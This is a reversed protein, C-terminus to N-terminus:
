PSPLEAEAEKARKEAVSAPVEDYAFAVKDGASFKTGFRQNLDAASGETLDFATGIYAVEFNRDGLEAGEGEEVSGFIVPIRREDATKLRIAAQEDREIKGAARDQERQARREAMKAEEAQYVSELKAVNADRKLFPVRWLGGDQRPPQLGMKNAAVLTEHYASGIWAFLEQPNKRGPYFELGRKKVEEPAADQAENEKSM